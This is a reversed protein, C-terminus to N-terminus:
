GERRRKGIWDVLDGIRYKPLRGVKVFPLNYRGTARWNQLTSAKVGLVQATQKPVLLAPLSDPSLNLAHAVEARIENRTQEDLELM